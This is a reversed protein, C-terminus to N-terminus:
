HGEMPTMTLLWLILPCSLSSTWPLTPSSTATVSGSVILCRNYHCLWWMHAVSLRAGDIYTDSLRRILGEAGGHCTIGEQGKVQLSHEDIFSTNFRLVLDIAMLFDFAWSALLSPLFQGLLQRRLFAMQYPVSLFMYIGTLPKLVKWCRWFRGKHDIVFSATLLHTLIARAGLLISRLCLLIYPGRTRRNLISAAWKLLVDKRVVSTTPGMLHYFIADWDERKTDLDFAWSLLIQAKDEDLAGRGPKDLRDFRNQIDEFTPAAGRSLRLDTLWFRLRLNLHGCQTLDQYKPNPEDIIVPPQSPPKHVKITGDLVTPQPPPGIETM